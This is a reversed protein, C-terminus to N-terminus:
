EKPLCAELFRGGMDTLIISNAAVLWPDSSLYVPRLEVLGAQSLVIPSEQMGWEFDDGPCIGSIRLWDAESQGTTGNRKLSVSANYIKAPFGEDIHNLVVHLAAQSKTIDDWERGKIFERNYNDRLLEADNLYKDLRIEMKEYLYSTMRNTIGYEIYISNYNQSKERLYNICRADKGSITGLVEIFINHLSTHDETARVLLAAWMEKMQGDTVDEASAKELYPVLFKSPVQSPERGELQLRRRASRTIEILVEERQLRLQDARLGRKESFPRIIDTIADLLRGSSATPVETKIEFKAEAKLGIEVPNREDNDSTM